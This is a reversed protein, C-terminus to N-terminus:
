EVSKKSQLRKEIIELFLKTREIGEVTFDDKFISEGAQVIIKDPNALITPDSTSITRQEAKYPSQAISIKINSIDSLYANRITDAHKQAELPNVNTIKQIHVWFNGNTLEKGFEDYLRKWLTVHLVAEAIAQQKEEDTGFTLKEALKTAQISRPELLGYLRMDAIKSYWSGSNASKHGLLQAVADQNEAESLQYHEYILKIDEFIKPFLRLDPITYSGIKM